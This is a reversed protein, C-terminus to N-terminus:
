CCDRRAKRAALAARRPGLYPVTACYLLDPLLNPLEDTAGDLVRSFVVEYIGGVVHEAVADPVTLGRPAESAAPRMFVTFGQLAAHRRDLAVPAALADVILLRAAVPDDALFRLFAGLGARIQRLWVRETEFATWVATVLRAIAADYAALFAADADGFHRHFAELTVGARSAIAEDTLDPYGLEGIAVAVAHLMREREADIVFPHPGDEGGGAPRDDNTMEVPM